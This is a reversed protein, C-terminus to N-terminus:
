EKNSYNDLFDEYAKEYIEINHSEVKPNESNLINFQLSVLHQLDKDLEKRSVSQEPIEFYDESIGIAM